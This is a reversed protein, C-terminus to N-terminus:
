GRIEGAPSARPHHARRSDELRLDSAERDSVARVPVTCPAQANGGFIVKRQGQEKRWAVSDPVSLDKGLTLGV